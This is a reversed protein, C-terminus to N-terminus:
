VAAKLAALPNAVATPATQQQQQQTPPTPTPLPPAAGGQNASLASQVRQERTPGGAASAAKRNFFTPVAPQRLRALLARGGGFFYWAAAAGALLLLASIAIAASGGAPLGAAASPAPAPAPSLTPTPTPSPTHSPTPTASLPPGIVRIKNNSSDAIYGHVAGYPNGFSTVAAPYSFRAATGAGDACGSAAAGSVTTTNGGDILFMQRLASNGGETVWLFEDFIYTFFYIGVPGFFLANTGTGDAFGSASPNGFVTSVVVTQLPTLPSSIVIKRIANNNYDTVFLAIASDGDDNAIGGVGGFSFRALSGAGDAFGATRNGSIYSVAGSSTVITRIANNKADVVFLLNNKWLSLAFPGYFLANSGTGDVFGPTTAGGGGAFTSVNGVPALKRILNNSADAVYLTPLTDVALGSPNYFRASTFSGDAYGPTGASSGALFASAASLTNVTRIRHSGTDAVYLRTCNSAACHVVGVPSEFGVSTGVGDSTGPAGCQGDGGALTLIGPPQALACVACSFIALLCFAPM